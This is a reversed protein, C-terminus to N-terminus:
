LLHTFYTDSKCFSIFNYISNQGQGGQKMLVMLSLNETSKDSNCFILSKIPGLKYWIKYKEVIVPIM